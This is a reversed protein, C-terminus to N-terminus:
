VYQIPQIPFVPQFPVSNYVEATPILNWMPLNTGRPSVYMLMAHQQKTAVLAAFLERTEDLVAAVATNNVVKSSAISGGLSDLNDNDIAHPAGHFGAAAATLGSTERIEYAKTM